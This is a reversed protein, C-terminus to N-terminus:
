SVASPTDSTVVGEERDTRGLDALNSYPRDSGFRYFEVPKDDRARTVSADVLHVETVGADRLHDCPTTIDGLIAESKERAEEISSAPIALETILLYQREQKGQQDM